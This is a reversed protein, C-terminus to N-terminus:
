VVYRAVSDQKSRRGFREVLLESEREIFSLERIAISFTLTERRLIRDEIDGVKEWIDSYEKEAAVLSNELAQVNKRVGDGDGKKRSLKDQRKKMALASNMIDESRKVLQMKERQLERLELNLKRLVEEQVEKRKKKVARLAERVGDMDGRSSRVKEIRQLLVSVDALLKRTYESFEHDMSADSNRTKEKRSQVTAAVALARIGATPIPLFGVAICFFM